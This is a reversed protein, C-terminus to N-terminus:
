ASTVGQGMSIRGGPEGIPITSPRRHFPKQRDKKQSRKGVANTCDHTGLQRKYDANLTVTAIDVLDALPLINTGGRHYPLYLLEPSARQPLNMWKKVSKKIAIDLSKVFKKQIQAGRLIFNVQPIIFTNIANIKQWPALLSPAVKELNNKM